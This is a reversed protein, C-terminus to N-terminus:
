RAAGPARRPPASAARGRWPRLPLRFASPVERRSSRAAPVPASERTRGAALFRHRARGAEDQSGGGDRRRERPGAGSGGGDGARGVERECGEGLRLRAGAVGDAERRPPRGDREGGRGPVVVVLHAHGRQRRAAGLRDRRTRRRVSPGSKTPSPRGSRTSTPAHWCAAQSKPAPVARAVCSVIISAVGGAPVTTISPPAGAVSSRSRTAPARRPRGASRRGDPCTSRPSGTRPRRQRRRSTDRRGTRCSRSRGPSRAPPRRRAGPPRRGSSRRPSTRRRRGRATPATRSAARRPRAPPGIRPLAEGGAM